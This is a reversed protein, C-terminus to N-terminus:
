GLLVALANVVGHATVAPWLSGSREVLLALVVGIPLVPLWAGPELGHVLAFLLASTAIGAVVGFRARLLRYAYGRFFTEEGIAVPVTVAVLILLLDPLDTARELLSEVPHTPIPMWREVVESTAWALVAAGLGAAAGLVWWRPRPLRFGLAAWSGPYRLRAFLLTVGALLGDDV